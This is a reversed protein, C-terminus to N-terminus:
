RKGKKYLRRIEEHIESLDQSLQDIESLANRNDRSPTQSAISSKMKEVQKTVQRLREQLDATSELGYLIAALAGTVAGALVGALFSVIDFVMAAGSV